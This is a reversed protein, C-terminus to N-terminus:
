YVAATIGHITAMSSFDFSSPGANNKRGDIRTLPARGSQRLVNCFPKAMRNHSPKNNRQSLENM